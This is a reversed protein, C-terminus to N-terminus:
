TGTGFEYPVLPESGDPEIGGRERAMQPAAGRALLREAEARLRVAHGAQEELGVRDALELRSTDRAAVGRVAVLGADPSPVLGTGNCHPCDVYATV